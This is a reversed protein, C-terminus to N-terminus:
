PRGAGEGQDMMIHLFSELHKALSANDTYACANLDPAAILAREGDSIIDTALLGKKWVVRCGEPVRQLPETIVTMGVSRKVASAIKKAMEDRIQSMDPTSIIFTRNSTDLLEGIKRLVRPRGWITYVVQPEGKDMLIEHRRQLGEFVEELHQSLRRRVETPPEPRYIMPRGKTSIAFGKDCLLQLVKYASTRPIQSAEAITDANGYGLEVLAIYARAEYNSLGFSQLLQAAERHGREVEAESTAASPVEEEM